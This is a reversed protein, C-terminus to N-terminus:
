ERNVKICGECCKGLKQLTEVIESALISGYEMREKLGYIMLMIQQMQEIMDKIVESQHKVRFLIVNEKDILYGWVRLHKETIKPYTYIPMFGKFKEIEKFHEFSVELFIEKNM